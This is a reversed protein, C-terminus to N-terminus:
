WGFELHRLVREAADEPPSMPDAGVFGVLGADSTAIRTALREVVEERNHTFVYDDPAVMDTEIWKRVKGVSENCVYDHCLRGRVTSRCKWGTPTPVVAAIVPHPRRAERVAGVIYFSRLPSPSSPQDESLREPSPSSSM